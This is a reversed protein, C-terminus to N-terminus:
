DYTKKISGFTNLQNLANDYVKSAELEETFYGLHKDKGNIKIQARWKKYNKFWSVGTYDSTSKLHKRNTNKRNTIIRLNSLHNNIRNFDIHDIVLKCESPKHNLFAMAVLRHIVYSKSKGNCLNVGHYGNGVICAKLIIGKVSRNLNDFRDLGKVRGYNSVQYLGEYGKIDKWIETQNM